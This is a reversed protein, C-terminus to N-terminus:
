AKVPNIIWSDTTRKKVKKEEIQELQEKTLQFGNEFIFVKGGNIELNTKLTRVQQQLQDCSFLGDVVVIILAYNPNIAHKPKKGDMQWSNPDYITQSPQGGGLDIVLAPGEPKEQFLPNRDLKQIISTWHPLNALHLPIQLRGGEINLGLQQPFNKKAM